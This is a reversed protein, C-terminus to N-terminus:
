KFYDEINKKQKPKEERVETFNDTLKAQPDKFIKIEKDLSELVRNLTEQLRKSYYEYDPRYNFSMGDIFPEVEQPTKKSNTVIWSVKMGPIFTEGREIMKRAANVNAMSDANKYTSFEKVSRSIVLKEIDVDGNSVKKILDEAYKKAGDINRDLVLEFVNNLAESQLDFSDTRRTEYGRVLIEGRKDEPYVIKGAYRKKAGHSFLPDMIKEFELTLNNEKSISSSLDNGFKVAEDLTKKGSEIFISDTDGYIVRLKKNELEKIITTITDRAFATIASSIERNTFRYFSTGLVGYFTNMLVKIAAQLGDLYEYNEKDTKMQKKVSDRDKMLEELIQPILGKKVEPSLFRAGNPAVITGEPSLTTFCINYKIIMSPYMSKFDLVVVMDYLGPEISHVYGGEYTENSASRASMPVAINLRDARRILISDVYTSTGGNTVDDLPLMSVTSMYLNRDLIRIKRYIELALYADKICYKIVDDKRNKWEDEINLRDVNEKGENLLYNAVYNLSEHKPKLVKKVEWWADDVVRGHLRWFQNMIRRPPLFDRGINFSLHHERMREELLPLDYGDINYGTIIDPDEDQILKNFNRLISEEDSSISGQRISGNFYIAYGIVYIEKSKISNEIDFSLIKLDPNFPEANKIENIKIVYDTTYNNKEDDLEEGDIEVSPGLDFDYLFRHHFPIDAALAECSCIKRMEPVKWPSKIYIKKVNQNRGDLFLTKDQMDLFEPNEKIKKICEDDPNVYYFYPKFGFYLATVSKGDATRGYLEVTVDSQRYSATILRMKLNM